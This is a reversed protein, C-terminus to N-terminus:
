EPCNPPVGKVCTLPVEEAGKTVSGTCTYGEGFEKILNNCVLTSLEVNTAGVNKEFYLDAAIKMLEKYEEIKTDKNQQTIKTVSAFVILLTISIILIVALLEILTFGNKKM